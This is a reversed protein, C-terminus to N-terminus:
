KGRQDENLGNIENVANLLQKRIGPRLKNLIKIRDEPGLGKFPTDGVNIAEGTYPADVVCNKLLYENKAVIDFDVISGQDAVYAKSQMTDHEEGALERIEFNRGEVTREVTENSIFDASLDVNDDQATTEDQEAM